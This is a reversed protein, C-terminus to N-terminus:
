YGYFLHLVNLALLKAAEVPTEGGPSLLLKSEVVPKEASIFFGSVVTGITVLSSDKLGGVGGDENLPFIM